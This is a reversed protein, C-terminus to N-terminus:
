IEQVTLSILFHILNKPKRFPTTSQPEKENVSYFQLPPYAHETTELMFNNIDRSGNPIDFFPKHNKPKRFPTTSQPKEENASYFQIPPQAHATNELMFNNM